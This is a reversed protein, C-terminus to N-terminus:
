VRAGGRRWQQQDRQPVQHVPLPTQLRVRRHTYLGTVEQDQPPQYVAAVPQRPLPTSCLSTIILVFIFPSSLPNTSFSPPPKLSFFSLYFLFVANLKFSIVPFKIRKIKCFHTFLIKYIGVVQM